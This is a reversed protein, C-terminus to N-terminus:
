QLRFGWLLELRRRAVPSFLPQRSQLHDPYCGGHQLTASSKRVAQGGMFPITTSILNEGFVLRHASHAQM